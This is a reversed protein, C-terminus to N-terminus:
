EAGGLKRLLEATSNPGKDRGPGGLGTTGETAMALPTKGRHNKANLDGGRKVLIEVAADFHQSAAVHLATNGDADPLNIDAGADIAAAVAEVARKLEADWDIAAREPGTLYFERRQHRRGYGVTGQGMMTGLAMTIAPKTNQPDNQANQQTGAPRDQGAFRKGSDEARTTHRSYQNPDAGKAALARMIEVEAFKAALWFPTAGKWAVNFEYEQNSYKRVPTGKTLEVNPNAGHALLANVLELDGRYVAAHLPAFGGDAANVDARHDM